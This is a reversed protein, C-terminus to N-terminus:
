AHFSPLSIDLHSTFMSCSLYLLSIILYSLKLLIEEIRKWKVIEIYSKLKNLSFQRLFRLFNSFHFDNFQTIKKMQYSFLSLSCDLILSTYLYVECISSFLSWLLRATINWHQAKLERIKVGMLMWSWLMTLLRLGHLVLQTIQIVGQM